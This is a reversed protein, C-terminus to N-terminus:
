EEAKEAMEAKEAKWKGYRQFGMQGRIQLFSCLRHIGALIFAEEVPVSAEVFHGIGQSNLHPEAHGDIADRIRHGHLSRAKFLVQHTAEEISFIDIAL